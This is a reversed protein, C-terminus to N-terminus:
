GESPHRCEEMPVGRELNGDDLYKLDVSIVEGGDKHCQLVRGLFWMGDIRRELFSGACVTRTEQAGTANLLSVVCPERAGRDEPLNSSSVACEAPAEQRRVLVHLTLGPCASVGQSGLTHEDDLEAGSFILCLQSAPAGLRDSLQAKFSGATDSQRAQVAFGEGGVVRVALGSGSATPAGQGGPGRVILHLTPQKATAIGCSSLTSGDSLSRGDFIL